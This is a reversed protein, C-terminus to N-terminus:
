YRGGSLDFFKAKKTPTKKGSWGPRRGGAKWIDPVDYLREKYGPMWPKKKKKLLIKKVREEEERRRRKIPFARFRPVDYGTHIITPRPIPTPYGPYTPTPYTPTTPAPYPPITKTPPVASPLFTPYVQQEPETPYTTQLSFFTTKYSPYVSPKTALRSPYKSTPYGETYTTKPPYSPEVVQSVPSATMVRSKMSMKGYGEPPYFPSIDKVPTIEVPQKPRFTFKYKPGSTPRVDYLEYGKESLKMYPEKSLTQPITRSTSVEKPTLTTPEKIMLRELLPSEKFGLKTYFREAGSIARATIRYGPFEKELVQVAKTGLGTQQPFSRIDEIILNKGRTFYDVTTYGKPDTITITKVEGPTHQPYLDFLDPEKISKTKIRMPKTSVTPKIVKVEPFQRIMEPNNEFFSLLGAKRTDFTLDNTPRYREYFIKDKGKLIGGRNVKNALKHFLQHEQKTLTVGKNTLYDTHHFELNKTKGSWDSKSGKLTKTMRKWASVIKNAAISFRSEYGFKYPAAWELSTKIPRPPEVLKPGYPYEMSFQPKKTIKPIQKEFWTKTRTPAFQPNEHYFSTLPNELFKGEVQPAWKKIHDFMMELDAISKKSLIGSKKAYALQQKFISIWDTIDKGRGPHAVDIRGGVLKRGSQEYISQVKNLFGVKETSQVFGGAPHYMTGAPGGGFEEESFIQLSKSFFQKFDTPKDPSDVLEKQIFDWLEKKFDSVKSKTWGRKEVKKVFESIPRLKKEGLGTAEYIKRRLKQSLPQKIKYKTYKYTRPFKYRTLTAEIDGAMFGGPRLPPEELFLIQATSGKLTFGFRGQNEWIFKTLAEAVGPKVKEFNIEAFTKLPKKYGTPLKQSADLLKFMYDYKALDKPDKLWGLVRKRWGAKLGVRYGATWGKYGAWLQPILMASQAFAEGGKGTEALEKVEWVFGKGLGLQEPKLMEFGMYGGLGYKAVTGATQSLSTVYGVGASLGAAGAASYGVTAIPSLLITGLAGKVGERKSMATDFLAGAKTAVIEARAQEHPKYGTLGEVEHFFSKFGFPDRWSIMGTGWTSLFGGHKGETFMEKAMKEYDKESIDSFKYKGEPTKILKYGLRNMGKLFDRTQEAKTKNETSENLQKQLIKVMNDKNVRRDEYKFYFDDPARKVNSLYSQIDSINKDITNITKNINSMESVYETSYPSWGFDILGISKPLYISKGTEPDTGVLYKKNLQMERIRDWDKEPLYQKQTWVIDEYTPAIGSTEAKYREVAGSPTWPLEKETGTKTGTFKSTYTSEPMIISGSPPSVGTTKFKEVTGPIAVDPIDPKKTEIKVNGYNKKVASKANQLSTYNSLKKEGNVYVIYNTKGNILESKIEINLKEPVGEAEKTISAVAVTTPATSKEWIQQSISEGRKEFYKVIDGFEQKGYTFTKGPYTIGEESYDPISIKKASEYYTPSIGSATLYTETTPAKAEYRELTREALAGVGFSTTPLKSTIDKMTKTVVEYRTIARQAGSPTSRSLGSIQRSISNIQSQLNSIKNSLTNAMRSLSLKQKPLKATRQMNLVATRQQELRRKQDYLTNRQNKLSNAQANVASYDVSPASYSPQPASVQVKKTFKYGGEPTGEIQYGEKQYQKLQSEQESIEKEAETLEKQYKKIEEVKQAKEKKQKALRSRYQPSAIVAKRMEVQQRISPKKQLRSVAKQALTKQEQVKSKQQQTKSIVSQYDVM